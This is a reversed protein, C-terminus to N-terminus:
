KRRLAPPPRPRRLIIPMVKLAHQLDRSRAQLPPMTLAVMATTAGVTADILHVSCCMAVAATECAPSASARTGRTCSADVGRATSRRRRHWRQGTPHRDRSLVRFALSIRSNRRCESNQTPVITRGCLLPRDRRPVNLFCALNQDTGIPPHTCAHKLGGIATKFAATVWNLKQTLSGTRCEDTRM